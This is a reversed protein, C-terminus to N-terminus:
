HVFIWELSAGHSVDLRGPAYGRLGINVNLAATGFLGTGVEIQAGWAPRVKTANYSTGARDDIELMRVITGGQLQLSARLPNFFWWEVGAGALTAVHRNAVTLNGAAPAHRSHDVTLSAFLPDALVYRGKIGYVWEPHRSGQPTDWALRGGSLGVALRYPGPAPYPDADAASEDTDTEADGEDVDEAAEESEEGAEESEEASAATPALVGIGLALAVAFAFRDSLRRV